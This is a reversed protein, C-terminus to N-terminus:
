CDKPMVIQLDMPTDSRLDVELPMSYRNGLYASVMCADCAAPIWLRFHGTADSRAVHAMSEVVHRWGYRYETDKSLDM